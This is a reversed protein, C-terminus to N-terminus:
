GEVVDGGGGDGRSGAEEEDDEAENWLRVARGAAARLADGGLEFRSEAVEEALWSYVLSVDGQEPLGWVWYHQEWEGQGGHGGRRTMFPPEPATDRTLRRMDLDPVAGRGDAYEVGFRLLRESEAREGVHGWRGGFPNEEVADFHRGAVRRRLATVEFAFGNPYVSVGSLFVALASRRVLLGDGV